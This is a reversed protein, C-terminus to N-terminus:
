TRGKEETQRVAITCNCCETVDVITAIVNDGPRRWFRWPKYRAVIAYGSTGWPIVRHDTQVIIAPYRRKNM